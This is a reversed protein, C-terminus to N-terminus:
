RRHPTLSCLVRGLEGHVFLGLGGRGFVPGAGKRQAGLDTPSAREIKKEYDARSWAPGSVFDKVAKDGHAYVSFDFFYRHTAAWHFHGRSTAWGSFMPGSAYLGVVDLDSSVARFDEFFAEVPQPGVACHELSETPESLDVYFPDEPVSELWARLSDLEALVM